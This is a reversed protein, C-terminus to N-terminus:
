NPLNIGTNECLLRKETLVIIECIFLLKQSLLSPELNQKAPSKWLASFYKKAITFCTKRFDGINPTSVLNNKINIELFVLEFDPVRSWVHVAWKWNHHFVMFKDKFHWFLGTIRILNSEQCLERSKWSFKLIQFPIKRSTEHLMRTLNCNKIRVKSVIKGGCSVM